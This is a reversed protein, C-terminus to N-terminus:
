TPAGASQIAPERSEVGRRCGMSRAVVPRAPSFVVTFLLANTCARTLLEAVVGRPHDRVGALARSWSATTADAALDRVAAAVAVYVISTVPAIIVLGLLTLSPAAGRRVPAQSPSPTVWNPSIPRAAM